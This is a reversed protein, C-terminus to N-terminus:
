TFCSRTTISICQSRREEGSVGRGTGMGRVRVYRKCSSLLKGYGSRCGKERAEGVGLLHRRCVQAALRKAQQHEVAVVVRRCLLKELIHEAPPQEAAVARERSSVPRTWPCTSQVDMVRGHCMGCAHEEQM